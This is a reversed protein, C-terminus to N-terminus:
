RRVFGARILGIGADSDIEVLTATNPVFTNPEVPSEFHVPGEATMEGLKHGNVKIRVSQPQPSAFDISLKQTATDTVHFRLAARPATKRREGDFAALNIGWAFHQYSAGDKMDISQKLARPDPGSDTHRARSPAYQNPFDVCSTLLTALILLLLRPM